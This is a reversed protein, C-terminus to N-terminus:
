IEAYDKETYTSSLFRLGKPRIKSKVGLIQEAEVKVAFEIIKEKSGFLKPYKVLNMLLNVLLDDTFLLDEISICEREGAHVLSCRKAYIEPINDKFDPSVWGLFAEVRKPLSSLYSENSRTLLLELAIMNWLFATPVDNSNRSQGILIAAKRLDKRWADAVPIKRRLIKLLNFFLIRSQFRKWTGDLRFSTPSKTLRNDLFHSPDDKNLCFYRIRGSLHEGLINIYGTSRRKSYGLQSVSLISIEDKVLQLCERRADALKGNYNVIAYAEACEFFETYSTSIKLEVIRKNIGLRKRIRPLKKKAVLLVRDIRFENEVAENLVLNGIPAIFFWKGSHQDLQRLTTM